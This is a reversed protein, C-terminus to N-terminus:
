SVVKRAASSSSRSRGATIARTELSVRDSTGGAPFAILLKVPRDPYTGSQAHGDFAALGTALIEVNLQSM